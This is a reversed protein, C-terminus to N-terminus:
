AELRKIARDIRARFGRYKLSPTNNYKVLADWNKINMANAVAKVESSINEIRVPSHNKLQAIAGIICYSHDHLDSLQNKIWREPKNLIGRIGKLLTLTDM